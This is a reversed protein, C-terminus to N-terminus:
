PGKYEARLVFKDFEKEQCSKIIQQVDGTKARGDARVVISADKPNKGEAIWQQRENELHIPLEEIAVAEGAYIVRGDNMLQLTIPQIDSNEAPKAVQSTPLQIRQDQEAESFNITFMFFTILQFSVDIMPTMDIDTTSAGKRKRGM